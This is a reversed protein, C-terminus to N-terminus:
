ARPAPVCAVNMPAHHLIGRSVSPHWLRELGHWQHSGVVILDAQAESAMEVLRGDIRGSGAAVKIEPAPEGLVETVKRHLAARVEDEHEHFDAALEPVVSFDPSTPAPMWALYAALVECPGIKRLERVWQLAAESQPTFDTGVFVRLPGEGRLWAEFPVADRIVLTPVPASEATREAVSGLWWRALARHGHAAVVVLGVGPQRALSVLEKEPFGSRLDEAIVAGSSRLREAERHLAKRDLAVAQARLGSVIGTAAPECVCVLSLPVKLRLALVAAVDAARAAGASLDTGCLISSCTLM